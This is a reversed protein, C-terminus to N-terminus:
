KRQVSKEHITSTQTTLPTSPTQYYDIATLLGLLQSKRTGKEM